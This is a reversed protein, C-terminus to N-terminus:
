GLDHGSKNTKQDLEEVIRRHIVMLRTIRQGVHLVFIDICFGKPRMLETKHVHMKTIIYAHHLSPLILRHGIKAKQIRVWVQDSMGRPM